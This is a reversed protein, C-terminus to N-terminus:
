EVDDIFPFETRQISQYNNGYVDIPFTVVDVAGLVFRRGTHWIGQGLGVALGSVIDTNQMERNVEIPVEAWCFLVNGAGRGLKSLSKSPYTSGYLPGTKTSCGTTAGITAALLASLGLCRLATTTRRTLRMTKELTEGHSPTISVTYSELRATQRLPFLRRSTSLKGAQVAPAM